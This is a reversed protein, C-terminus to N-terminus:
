EFKLMAQFVLNGKIAIGGMPQWGDKIAANVKKELDKIEPKIDDFPADSSIIKYVM